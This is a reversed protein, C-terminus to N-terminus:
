YFLSLVMLGNETFESRLEEEEENKRKWGSSDSLILEM